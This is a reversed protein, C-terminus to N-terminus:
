FLLSNIFSLVSTTNNVRLAGEAARASLFYVVGVGCTVEPPLDSEIGLLSIGM